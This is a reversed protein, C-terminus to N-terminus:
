RRSEKKRMDAYEGLREYEKNAEEPDFKPKVKPTVKPKVKHKLKYKM